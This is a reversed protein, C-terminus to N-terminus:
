VLSMTSVAVITGTMTMLKKMAKRPPKIGSISVAFDFIPTVTWRATKIEANQRLRACKEWPASTDKVVKEGNGSFVSMVVAHRKAIKTSTLGLCLCSVWETRALMTYERIM